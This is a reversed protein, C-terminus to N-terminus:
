SGSRAASLSDTNFLATALELESNVGNQFSYICEYEHKSVRAFATQAGSPKSELHYIPQM